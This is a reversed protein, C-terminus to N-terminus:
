KVGWCVAESFDVARKCTDTKKSDSRSKIGNVINHCAPHVKSFFLAHVHVVTIQSRYKSTTKGLIYTNRTNNVIKRKSRSFNM